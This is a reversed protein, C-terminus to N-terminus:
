QGARAYQLIAPLLVPLLLILEGVLVYVVSTSDKAAMSALVLVAAVFVACYLAVVWGRTFVRQSWLLLTVFIALIAVPLSYLLLFFGFAGDQYSAHAPAGASLVILAAIAGAAAAPGREATMRELGYTMAGRDGILYQALVATDTLRCRERRRSHPERSKV